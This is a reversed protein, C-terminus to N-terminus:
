SGKKKFELKVCTGEHLRSSIHLAIGYRDCYRKVLNLGIGYGAMTSDNQYYRDYIHMLTIEDMGMGQDCISVINDRLTITIIPSKPSYKVGNEILNDIVKALGIRDCNVDCSELTVEWVVSPYLSALFILREELVERLNFHEIKERESQKKILYDLENYREKLMEAAVEIRELRKLSKDDTHTKRLMQVNATITNIPLNLEHLTEKSFRELHDFHERLPTIAIRALISGAVLTIILSVFAIIGWQQVGLVDHVYYIGAILIGTTTVYLSALAIEVSRFM